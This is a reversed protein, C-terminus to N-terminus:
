EVDIFTVGSEADDHLVGIIRKVQEYRVDYSQPISVYAEDNPPFKRLIEILESNTM